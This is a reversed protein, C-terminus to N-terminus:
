LGWVILLDWFRQPAISRCGRQASRLASFSASHRGLVILRLPPSVLTHAGNGTMTFRDVQAVKVAGNSCVKMWGSRFCLIEDGTAGGFPDYHRHAALITPYDPQDCVDGAAATKGGLESGVQRKLPILGHYSDDHM